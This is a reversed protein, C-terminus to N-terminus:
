DDENSKLSQQLEKMLIDRIEYHFYPDAHQYNRRHEEYERFKQKVANRFEESEGAYLRDVFADEDLIVEYFNGMSDVVLLKFGPEIWDAWTIDRAYNIMAEQAVLDPSQGNALSNAATGVTILIVLIVPGKKIIGVWGASTKLARLVGLEKGGSKLVIDTALKGGKGKVVKEVVDIGIEKLRRIMQPRTLPNHLARLIGEQQAPTLGKLDLGKDKIQQAAWKLYDDFAGKHFRGGHDARDVFHMIIKGDKNRFHHWTGSGDQGPFGKYKQKAIRDALRSDMDREGTGEIM